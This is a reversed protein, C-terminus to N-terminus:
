ILLLCSQRETLPLGGTFTHIGTRECSKSRSRTVKFKAKVRCVLFSTQLDLCEFTLLGFLVCPCEKKVQSRSRSWVVKIYLRSMPIRFISRCVLLSTELDLSEFMLAWVSLVCLCLCVSVVAHMLVGCECTTYIMTGDQEEKSFGMIDMAEVLQRYLEADDQGAVLVNGHTLYRYSKIDELLFEEVSVSTILGFVCTLCKIPTFFTFYDWERNRASPM